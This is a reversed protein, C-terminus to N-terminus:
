NQAGRGGLFLLFHFKYDQELHVKPTFAFNWPAMASLTLAFDLIEGVIEIEFLNRPCLKFALPGMM